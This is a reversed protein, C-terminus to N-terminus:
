LQGRRGVGWCCCLWTGLCLLVNCLERRISDGRVLSAVLQCCKNPNREQILGQKFCQTKEAEERGKQLMFRYKKGRYFSFNPAYLRLKLTNIIKPQHLRLMVRGLVVQQKSLQCFTSLWLCTFKLEVTPFSPFFPFFPFFSHFPFLPFFPFFPFLSIVRSHVSLVSVSQDAIINWCNITLIFGPRPSLLNDTRKPILSLLTLPFLHSFM